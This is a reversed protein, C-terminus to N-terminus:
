RGHELGMRKLALVAVERHAPQELMSNLQYVTASLRGRRRLGEFINSLERDPSSNIRFAVQVAEECSVDPYSRM